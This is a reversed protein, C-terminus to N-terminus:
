STKRCTISCTAYPYEKMIKPSGWSCHCMKQIECIVVVVSPYAFSVVSQKLITIDGNQKSNKYVHLIYLKLASM